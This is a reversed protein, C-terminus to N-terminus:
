CMQPPHSKIQDSGKLGLVFAVPVRGVSQAEIRQKCQAPGARTVEWLFVLIHSIAPLTTIPNRVPSPGGADAALQAVSRALGFDALKM